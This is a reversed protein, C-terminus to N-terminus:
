RKGGPGRHGARGSPGGDRRGPAETGRQEGATATVCCSNQARTGYRRAYCRARLSADSTSALDLASRGYRQAESFDGLYLTIDALRVLVHVREASSEILAMEAEALAGDFDGRV